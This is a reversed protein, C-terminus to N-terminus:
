SLICRYESKRKDFLPTNAYGCTNKYPCFGRYVCEPVCVSALEPDIEYLKDVVGSWVSKVEKHAKNCLRKRSINIFDEANLLIRHNVLAGQPMSDRDVINANLDERSTSVFSVDHTAFADHRAFHQSIWCKIGSISLDFMLARIPSHQSILIDKKFQNSPEKDLDAKNVTIRASNLVNKWNSLRDIKIEM